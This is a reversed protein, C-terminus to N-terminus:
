IIEEVLKTLSKVVILECDEYGNEDLIKRRKAYYEKDSLGTMDWPHYEEFLWEFPRADIEYNGVRIHCNVGEIPVVGWNMLRWIARLREGESDFNVFCFRYPYNERRSKVSALGGTKGAAVRLEHYKKLQQKKFIKHFGFWGGYKEATKKGGKSGGKNQLTKDFYFGTSNKRNVEAGVRGAKVRQAHCKEPSNEAYKKAAKSMAKRSTKSHHKNRMGKNPYLAIPYSKGTQTARILKKTKESHHTGKRMWSV